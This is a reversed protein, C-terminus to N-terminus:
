TRSIRSAIFLYAAATLGSPVVVFLVNPILVDIWTLVSWTSWDRAFVTVVVPVLLLALVASGGAWILLAIKAQSM